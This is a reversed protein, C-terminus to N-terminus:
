LRWAIELNLILNYTTEYQSSVKIQILDNEDFGLDLSGNAYAHDFLNFSLLNNRGKITLDIQKKSYGGSAQATVGVIMGGRLAPWGSM